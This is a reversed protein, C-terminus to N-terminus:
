EYIMLLYQWELLRLPTSEGEFIYIINPLKTMMEPTLMINGNTYYINTYEKFLNKFKTAISSPLYTDTTGSDVICGKGISRIDCTLHYCPSSQPPLGKTWVDKDGGISKVESGDAQAQFQVDILNITFWGSRKLLKAYVLESKAHVRQDVGGLTLIGGGVRFCLAFIKTSTIQKAHMVYPLTDESMSLGMIGDALQTRFLGTEFTQCGFSFDVSYKHASSVMDITLGGIYLRDTMKFARWSSGESYSQSMVCPKGKCDSVVASSSNKWEFYPNIHKGCQQCGTCPFATLRSGTDIIVTQRQPPTGIYIYSFHTGYGPYLPTLEEGLSELRRRSPRTLSELAHVSHPPPLSPDHHIDSISEDLSEKSKGVKMFVLILYFIRFVIVIMIKNLKILLSFPFYFYHFDIFQNFVFADV